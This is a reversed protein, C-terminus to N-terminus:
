ETGVGRERSGERAMDSEHLGTNKGGGVRQRVRGPFPRFNHRWRRLRRLSSYALECHRQLPSWRGPPQKVHIVVPPTAPPKQPRNELSKLLMVVQARPQIGCALSGQKSSCERRRPVSCAWVWLERQNRPKSVESAVRLESTVEGTTIEGAVRRKLFVKFFRPHRSLLQQRGHMNERAAAVLGPLSFHAASQHKLPEAGSRLMTSALLALVARRPAHAAWFLSTQNRRKLLSPTTPLGFIEQFNPTKSPFNIQKTTCSPPGTYRVGTCAAMPTQESAELPCVEKYLRAESTQENAAAGTNGWVNCHPIQKKNGQLGTIPEVTTKVADTPEYPIITSYSNLLLLIHTLSSIQTGRLMSTKLTSSPSSLHTHLLAPICPRPSLSIGSFVQRGADDDPVIGVNSFISAVGGLIPTKGVYGPRVLKRYDQPLVGSSPVVSAMTRNLSYNISNKVRRKIQGIDYDVISSVLQDPLELTITTCLRPPPFPRVSFDHRVTPIIEDRCQLDLMLLDNIGQTHDGYAAMTPGRSGQRQSTTRPSSALYSVTVYAGNLRQNAYSKGSLGLMISGSLYMNQRGHPKEFEFDLSPPFIDSLGHLGRLNHILRWGGMNLPTTECTQIGGGNPASHAKTHEIVSRFITGLVPLSKAIKVDFKQSEVQVVHDAIFKMWRCGCTIERM